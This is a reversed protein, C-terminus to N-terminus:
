SVRDNIMDFTNLIDTSYLRQLVISINVQTTDYKLAIAPFAMSSEVNEQAVTPVSM